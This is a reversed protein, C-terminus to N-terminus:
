ENKSKFGVSSAIFKYACWLKFIQLLMTNVVIM